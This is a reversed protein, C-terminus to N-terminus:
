TSLNPIISSYLTKCNPAIYRVGLVDRTSPHALLDAWYQFESESLSDLFTLLDDSGELCRGASGDTGPDVSM